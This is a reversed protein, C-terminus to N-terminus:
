IPQPDDKVHLGSDKWPCEGMFSYDEKFFLLTPFPNPLYSHAHSIHVDELGTLNLTVFECLQCPFLPTGLYIDKASFM